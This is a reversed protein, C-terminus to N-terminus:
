FLEPQDDDNGGCALIRRIHRETTRYKLALKRQSLTPWQDRIEKDRIKRLANEALAIELTEGGYSDSLTVANCIGVLKILPHDETIEKPVYLRVGGYQQVIAMTAPLGILEAIERLVGPLLTIDIEQQM